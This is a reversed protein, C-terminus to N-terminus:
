RRALRRAITTRFRKVTGGPADFSEVLDDLVQWGAVAAPLEAEGFLCYGREADFMEMFTTGEILVNLAAIGGARVAAIARRLARSPPPVRM